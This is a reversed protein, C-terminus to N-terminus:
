FLFLFLRVEFFELTMVSTLVTLSWARENDQLDRNLAVLAQGYLEHGRDAIADQRHITGFYIAALARVSKQGSFSSTDKAHEEMWPLCVHGSLLHSLLFSTCINDFFPELNLSSRINPRENLPIM